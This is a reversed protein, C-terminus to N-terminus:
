IALIGIAMEVSRDICLGVLSERGVGLDRLHRALQNARANLEGFTLQQNECLIATAHPNLEVQDEFLLTVPRQPFQPHRDGHLEAFTSQDPLNYIQSELNSTEVFTRPM